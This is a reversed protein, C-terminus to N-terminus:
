APELQTRQSQSSSATALPIEDTEKKMCFYEGVVTCITVSVLQLLWWTIQLPFQGNYLIVMVFHWFHLTCAFDLCNKARQIVNSFAFGLVAAATLQIISVPRAAMPTFVHDLNPRYESFLSWTFMLVCEASYFVCQNCAIQGIILSPDWTASRFASMGILSIFMTHAQQSVLSFLLFNFASHQLHSGLLRRGENLLIVAVRGPDSLDDISIGSLGEPWYNFTSAFIMVFAHFTIPNMLLNYAFRTFFNNWRILSSILSSLLLYVGLYLGISNNLLGVSLLVVTLTGYHIYRVTARESPSRLKAAAILPWLLNPVLVLAALQEDSWRSLEQHVVSGSKMYENYAFIHGFYFTVSILNTQAWATWQSKLDTSDLWAHFQHLLLIIIQLGIAPFYYAISLFNHPSALFYFFYSRHFKELLNNFSRLGGELILATSDMESTRVNQARDPLAKLSVSHIRYHNLISHVGEIENFAQSFAGQWFNDLNKHKVKENGRIIVNVDHKECLRVFLNFVDLNPLLGNVGIYELKMHTFRPVSLDLVIGGIITGSHGTLSEAWLYRGTEIGNYAQLWSLTAVQPDRGDVFLFIIDRAWYSKSKSHKAISLAVSIANKQNSDLKVVVLIAEASISRTARLIGFVNTGTTKTINSRFRQKFTELGM